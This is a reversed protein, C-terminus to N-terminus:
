LYYLNEFDPIFSECFNLFRSKLRFFQYHSKFRELCAFYLDDTNTLMTIKKIKKMRLKKEYKELHNRTKLLWDKQVTYLSLNKFTNPGCILNLKQVSEIITLEILTVQAAALDKWQMLLFNKSPEDVCPTKKINVGIPTIGYSKCVELFVVHYFTEHSKELFNYIQQPLMEEVM